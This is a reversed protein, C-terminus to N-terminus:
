LGSNSLACQLIKQIQLVFIIIPTTYCPKRSLSAIDTQKLTLYCISFIGIPIHQKSNRIIVGSRFCYIPVIICKHVSWLAGFAVRTSGWLNACGCRDVIVDSCRIHRNCIDAGVCLRIEFKRELVEFACFAIFSIGSCIYFSIRSSISSISIQILNLNPTFNITNM